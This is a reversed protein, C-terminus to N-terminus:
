FASAMCVGVEEDAWRKSDEVIQQPFGYLRYLGGQCTIRGAEMMEKLTAKVTRKVAAGPGYNEQWM